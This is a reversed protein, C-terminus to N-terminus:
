SGCPITFPLPVAAFAFMNAFNFKTPATSPNYMPVIVFFWSDRCKICLNAHLYISGETM